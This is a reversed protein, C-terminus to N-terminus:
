HERGADDVAEDHRNRRDEDARADFRDAGEAGGPDAVADRQRVARDM